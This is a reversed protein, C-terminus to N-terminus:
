RTCLLHLYMLVLCFVILVVNPSHYHAASPASSVQKNACDKVFVIHNIVQPAAPGVSIIQTVISPDAQM